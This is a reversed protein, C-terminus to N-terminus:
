KGLFVVQPQIHLDARLRGPNLLAPAAVTLPLHRDLTVARTPAIWRRPPTLWTPVSLGVVMPGLHALVPLACIVHGTLLVAVLAMTATSEVVTTLGDPQGPMPSRVPEM